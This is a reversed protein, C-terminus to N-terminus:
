AGYSLWGKVRAVFWNGDKAHAKERASEERRAREEDEWQMRRLIHTVASLMVDMKDITPSQHTSTIARIHQATTAAHTRWLAQQDRPDNTSFRIPDAPDYTTPHKATARRPASRHVASQPRHSVKPPPTPTTVTTDDSEDDSVILIDRPKPQVSAPAM